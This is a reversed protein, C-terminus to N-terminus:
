CNPKGDPSPHSDLAPVRRHRLYADIDGELFGIRRVSLRVKAIQGTRAVERLTRASIGLLEAAQRESFVRDM